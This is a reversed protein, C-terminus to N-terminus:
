TVVSAMEAECDLQVEVCRFAGRENHAKSGSAELAGIVAARDPEYIATADFSADLLVM